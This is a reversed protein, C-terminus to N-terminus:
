ESISWQILFSLLLVSTTFLLVLGFIQFFLKSLHVTVNEFFFVTVITAHFWSWDQEGLAKDVNLLPEWASGVPQCDDRSVLSLM